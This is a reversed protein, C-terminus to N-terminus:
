RGASLGPETVFSRTPKLAQWSGEVEGVQLSWKLVSLIEVSIFFVQVERSREALM